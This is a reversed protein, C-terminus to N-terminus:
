SIRLLGIVGVWFDGSSSGLPLLRSLRHACIYICKYIYTRTHKYICAVFRICTYIYIYVYRYRPIIKYTHICTQGPM